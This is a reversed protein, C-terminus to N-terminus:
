CIDPSGSNKGHLAEGLERHLRIAASEELAFWSTALSTIARDQPLGEIEELQGEHPRLWPALGFILYREGGENSKGTVLKSKVYSVAHAWVRGIPCNPDYDQHEVGM